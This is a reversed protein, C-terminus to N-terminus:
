VNHDAPNFNEDL